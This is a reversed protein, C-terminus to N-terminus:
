VIIGGDHCYMSEGCIWIISPNPLWAVVWQSDGPVGLMMVVPQLLQQRHLKRRSPDRAPDHREIVVGFPEHIGRLL